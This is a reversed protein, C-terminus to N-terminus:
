IQYQIFYILFGNEIVHLGTEVHLIPFKHCLIEQVLNEKLLQLHGKAILTSKGRKMTSLPLM